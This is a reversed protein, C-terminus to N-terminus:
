EPRPRGRAFAWDSIRAKATEFYVADQEIGVFGVGEAMAACGTTGSGLFPDLVTGGPPTVLRVLWRMLDVPKCTPHLNRLVGAVRERTRPKSIYFYRAAGAHMENLARVPCGEVCLLDPRTHGSGQCEPLHSFAVNAPWRGQVKSAGVNLAGTGHQRVTKVITDLSPKRAVVVPEHAPKLASNWGEWLLSEETAPARVEIVKTAGPEKSHAPGAFGPRARAPDTVERHGILEGVAGDEKDLAKSVNLGHPMGSGYIWEIYNVIEFGADEIAVAIRHHTRAGAFALLYGGPKLVALAAAWTEPQFSVGESDWSHDSFGIEYPPDCVVAAISEADM